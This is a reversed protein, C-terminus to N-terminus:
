QLLFFGQLLTATNLPFCICGRVCWDEQPRYKRSSELTALAGWSIPSGLRHPPTLQPCGISGTRLVAKKGM